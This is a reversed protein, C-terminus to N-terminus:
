ETNNINFLKTFHLHYIQKINQCILYNDEWAQKQIEHIAFSDMFAFTSIYVKIGLLQGPSYLSVKIKERGGVRGGGGAFFYYYYNRVHIISPHCNRLCAKSSFGTTRGQVQPLVEM